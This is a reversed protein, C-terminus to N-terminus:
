ILKNMEKKLDELVDEAYIHQDSYKYQWNLGLLLQLVAIMFHLKLREM